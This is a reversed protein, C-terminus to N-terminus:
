CMGSIRTPLQTHMPGAGAAAGTGAAAQASLTWLAHKAHTQLTAGTVESKCDTCLESGISAKYTGKACLECPGGDPGTSGASCLCHTIDAAAETSQSNEPCALCNDASTVASGSSYTGAGCVTCEQNGMSAKFTGAVCAECIGYHLTYGPACVCDTAVTAQAQSTMHESIDSCPTAVEEACYEGPVCPVCTHSADAKYGDLCM